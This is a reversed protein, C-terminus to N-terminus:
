DVFVVCKNNYVIIRDDLHAQLAQVLVNRELIRGKRIFDNVEDRHSVSIVDQSIIPGEDLVPTAFHATAGILKVGRDSAHHYARGGSFAPLFSHHINIINNPYTNLFGDSLVQMYRALVITDIKYEELLDLEKQEQELKTDTTIPFVKYPIGFTDAVPQLDAHNSLVLPIDCELENAGHRLLLEWLCHNYKSVMVAVRKRRNRWNLHAKVGLQQSIEIMQEGALCMDTDDPSFDFLIRQFFLNAVRDTYQESKVIGCGHRNLLEACAAVIGKRDPGYVRLTALRAATRGSMNLSSYITSLLM